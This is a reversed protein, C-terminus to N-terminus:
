LKRIAYREWDCCSEAEAEHDTVPWTIKYDNGDADQGHAEFWEDGGIVQAADASPYPQQMIAVDILSGNDAAFSVKGIKAIAQTYTM